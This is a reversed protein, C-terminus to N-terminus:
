VPPQLWANMRAEVNVRAFTSAHMSPDHSARRELIWSTPWAPPNVPDAREQDARDSRAPLHCSVCSLVIARASGPEEQRDQLSWLCQEAVAAPRPPPADVTRESATGLGLATLAGMAFLAASAALTAIVGTRTFQGGTVRRRLAAAEREALRVTEASLLPAQAASPSHALSAPLPEDFLELAPELVAQMQRCRPCADLHRELERDHRRGPDTLAEFAQDCNM